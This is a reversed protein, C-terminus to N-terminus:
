GERAFTSLVGGCLVLTYNVGYSRAVGIAGFHGHSKVDFAAETPKCSVNLRLHQLDIRLAAVNVADFINEAISSRKRQSMKGAIKMGM